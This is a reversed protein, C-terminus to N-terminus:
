KLMSQWEGTRLPAPVKKGPKLSGRRSNPESSSKQDQELRKGREFAEQARRQRVARQGDDDPGEILEVDIDEVKAVSPPNLRIAPRPRPLQLNNVNFAKHIQETQQPSLEPLHSKTAAAPLPPILMDKSTARTHAKTFPSTEGSAGPSGNGSFPSTTGDTGVWSPRRSERDDTEDGGRFGVRKKGKSAEAKNTPTGGEASTVVSSSAPTYKPSEQNQPDLFPNAYEDAPTM